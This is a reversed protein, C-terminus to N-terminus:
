QLEVTEDLVPIHTSWGLERKLRDAMAASQEPEGHTIFTMKPAVSIPELWHMIEYWDAHASLGSLSVVRANVPIKKKHIHVFEAGDILRRGLSGQAMFGIAAVTSNEDPLRNILHHMIRGGTMMGSSSIIIAPGKLKNLARSSERKRHINVRKSNLVCRDGELEQINIRHYEPYRCYIDTAKAAMPSDIHVEIPEIMGGEILQHVLYSVTQTRGVAFSPILVVGKRGMTDRIIEALGSYPDSPPHIRSGYTSECILYDTQPPEAPDRTLPNGYRGIDGSFLITRKRDSDKVEFEIHAAGLIHGAVLCRFKINSNIVNWKGFPTPKLMPLALSVDESTFLPLAPCHRTLGKRNRYEADEEQIHAADNLVVQAIDITPPTAYVNGTFGMKVFRPLFGIHDVHSHTLVVTSVQSPDFPLETWNKERLERPGQFMGCDILVSTDNIQLLYKSGTVAGAAGHFSLSIL